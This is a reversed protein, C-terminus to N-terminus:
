LEFREFFSDRTWAEMWTGATSLDTVSARAAAVTTQGDLARLFRFQPETLEVPFVRYRSRSLALFTAEAGPLEPAGGQRAALVYRHIPHRFAFTRLCPAPSPRVSDLVEISPVSPLPQGELGRGDFVKLFALEFRALEVIL